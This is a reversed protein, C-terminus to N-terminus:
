SGRSGGRGRLNRRRMATYCTPLPLLSSSWVAELRQVTVAKFRQRGKTIIKASSVRLGGPRLLLSAPHKVAAVGSFLEETRPLVTLMDKTRWGCQQKAAMAVPLGTQGLLFDM